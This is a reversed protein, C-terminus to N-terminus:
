EPQCARGNKHCSVIAAMMDHGIDRMEARTMRLAQPLVTHPSMPRSAVVYGWDSESTMGSYTQFQRDIDVLLQRTRSDSLSESFNKLKSNELLDDLSLTQPPPRHMSSNVVDPLNLQQLDSFRTSSIASQRLPNSNCVSVSLPSPSQKGPSQDVKFVQGSQQYQRVLIYTMVGFGVCATASIFLWFLFYPYSRTRMLMSTGHLDLVSLWRVGGKCPQTKKSFIVGPHSPYFFVM